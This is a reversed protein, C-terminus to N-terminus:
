EGKRWLILAWYIQDKQREKEKYIEYKTWGEETGLKDIKKDIRRCKFKILLFFLIFISVFGSVFILLYKEDGTLTLELM